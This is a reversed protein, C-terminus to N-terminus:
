IEKMDKWIKWIVDIFDHQPHSLRPLPMKTEKWVAEVM